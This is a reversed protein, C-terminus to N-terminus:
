QVYEDSSTYMKMLMDLVKDILMLIKFSIKSCYTM